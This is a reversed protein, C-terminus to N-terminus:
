SACRANARFAAGGGGAYNRVWVIWGTGTGDPGSYFVLPPILSPINLFEIGGGTATAGAPCIATASSSAGAPISVTASVSTQAKTWGVQDVPKAAPGPGAPSDARSQDSSASAAAGLRSRPATSEGDTCAALFVASSLLLLATRM